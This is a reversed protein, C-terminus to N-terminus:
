YKPRFISIYAPWLRLHASGEETRVSPDQSRISTPAKICILMEETDSNFQTPLLRARFGIEWGLIGVSMCFLVCMVTSSRYSDTAETRDTRPWYYPYTFM